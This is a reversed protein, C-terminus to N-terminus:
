ISGASVGWRCTTSPGCGCRTASSTTRAAWRSTAPKPSCRPITASCRRRALSIARRARSTRGREAVAGDLAGAGDPPQEGSVAGAVAAGSLQAERLDANRYVANDFTGFDIGDRIVTTQGTTTDIFDDIGGTMKRWIYTGKAYVRPTLQSGLSATFERTLPSHLGDEFFVNATPFTGSVPASYNALDFGPAFDLGQGEPGIYDYIIDAPIASTRTTPSSTRATSAPTTVTPRRCSSAHRRGESRLDGGAAAGRHRHQGRQHRGDGHQARARLAHRRRVDLAQGGDLRDHFYFSTTDINIQAGRTPLWQELQSIGPVFVPIFRGQSDLAPAGGDDPLYDADFVYGTPTQSNGGTNTSRFWEVGGKLDHSGVTPSSLFYSSAARRGSPQQSRGSRDRRFVARQLAARGAGDRRGLLVAFRPHRDVRRRQRPLRLAEALGPVDRVDEVNLM